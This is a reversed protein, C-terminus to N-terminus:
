PTLVLLYHVAMTLGDPFGSMCEWDQGRLSVCIAFEGVEPLLALLESGSKPGAPFAEQLAHQLTDDFSEAIQIEQQVGEEKM